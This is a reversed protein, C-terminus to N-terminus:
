SQEVIDPPDPAAKGPRNPPNRPDPGSYFIYKKLLKWFGAVYGGNASGIALRTGFKCVVFDLSVRLEEYLEDEHARLLRAPSLSEIRIDRM